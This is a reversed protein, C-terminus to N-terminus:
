AGEISQAAHSDHQSVRAARTSHVYCYGHHVHIRGHMDTCAVVYLGVELEEEM